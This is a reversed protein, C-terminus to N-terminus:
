AAEEYPVDDTALIRFICERSKKTCDKLHNANGNAVCENCVAASLDDVQLFYKRGCTDCHIKPCGGVLTGECGRSRCYLIDPHELMYARFLAEPESTGALKLFSLIEPFQQYYENAIYQDAAEDLCYLLLKGTPGGHDKLTRLARAVVVELSEGTEKVIQKILVDMKEQPTSKM